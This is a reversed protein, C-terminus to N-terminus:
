ESLGVAELTQARDSFDEMRIVARGRFTWPMEPLPILLVDPDFLDVGARLHDKAWEEYVARVAYLNEQSM